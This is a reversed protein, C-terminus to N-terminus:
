SCTWMFLGREGRGGCLACVGVDVWMLKSASDEQSNNLDSTDSSCDSQKDTFVNNINIPKIYDLYWTNHQKYSIDFENHLSECFYSDLLTRTINLRHILEAHREVLFQEASSHFDNMCAVVSFSINITFEIILHLDYLYNSGQKLRGFYVIHFYIYYLYCWQGGM